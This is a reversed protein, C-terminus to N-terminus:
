SQGEGRVAGIRSQGQSRTRQQTAQLRVDVAKALLKFAAVSGTTSLLMPVLMDHGARTFEVMLVIATLPMQMSAALFAGAGVVAFEGSSTGPWIINWLGGLVVALLAGNTLGPTLLGGEAGARLSSVEIAVKLVLLTAALGITLDSDFSLGAAGKGNGALQPYLLVLVGILMFNLSACIPLRADKPARARAQGTLRVFCWAALGFFPGCVLSWVFLPASLVLQPVAYQHENGLGIWATVAALASTFLALVSVRWEFTGLLVELVFLAGGLPVNYVAALGAGAGCAVMVRQDTVSLGARQAIWGSWLAGVERPAVERGLPSGLAVTIIQLLAHALTSSAPMRPDESRVAERISVLPRGWRYLAWWGFGAVAGCLAFAMLRRSYSAASVGSLFSETSIVRGLSYGYALHQVAHLLLALFMGSLGAGVGTLAAVAVLRAYRTLPRDSIPSTNM